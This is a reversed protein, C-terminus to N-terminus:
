DHKWILVVNFKYEFKRKTYEILAAWPYEDINTSTGGIIRNDYSIGCQRTTPLLHSNDVKQETTPIFIRNDGEYRCCVLVTNGRKGCQSQQLFSTQMPTRNINKLLELLPPCQLLDICVGDLRNPTSCSGDPFLVLISIFNM